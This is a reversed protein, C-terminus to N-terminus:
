AKLDVVARAKCGCRIARGPPDTRGVVSDWKFRMGDRAVHYPRPHLKHSHQWQFENIGLQVQREQDLRSTLKQLQDAAILDARSKAVDAIKRIEKSVEAATSRNTLGRFVAGSIGTRMQENLSRILAVNEELVAELTLSVDARGLLTELTVGAPVFLQSTRGRHWQEVRVIWDELMPGLAIILRNLAAAADETAGKVDAPADRVGEALTAAYVPKIREDTEDGWTRVVRRYLRRLDLEFGHPAVIATLVLEDQRTRRARRILEAIPIQV